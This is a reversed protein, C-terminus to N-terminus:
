TIVPWFDHTAVEVTPKYKNELRKQLRDLAVSITLIMDREDGDHVIRILVASGRLTKENYSGSYLGIAVYNNYDTLDSIIREWEDNFRLRTMEEALICVREAISM